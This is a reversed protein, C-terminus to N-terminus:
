PTSKRYNFLEIRPRDGCRMPSDITPMAQQKSYGGATSKVRGCVRAIDDAAVSDGLNILAVSSQFGTGDALRLLTEGM